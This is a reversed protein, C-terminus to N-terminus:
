GVQIRPWDPLLGMSGIGPNDVPIWIFEFFLGFIHGWAVGKPEKVHIDLCKGREWVCCLIIYILM